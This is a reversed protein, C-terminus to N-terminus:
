PANSLVEVQRDMAASCYAGFVSFPLNVRCVKRLLVHSPTIGITPLTCHLTHAGKAYVASSWLDLGCTYCDLVGDGNGQLTMGTMWLQGTTDGVEIFRFFTEDRAETLRVYLGDLWLSTGGVYLLDTDVLLLCQGSSLPLMPAHTSPVTASPEPLGTCNAQMLLPMNVSCGVTGRELFKIHCASTQACGVTVLKQLQGAASLHLALELTLVFCM